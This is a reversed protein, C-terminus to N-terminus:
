SSPADYDVRTRAGGATREVWWVGDLGPLAVAGSPDPRSSVEAELGAAAAAAETPDVSEPGSALSGAPGLVSPARPGGALATEAALRFGGWAHSRVARGEVPHEGAATLVLGHATGLQRYGGSGAAHHDPGEGGLWQPEDTAEFDLEWGLPVRHGLGRGLLEVPDDLALAFAELGYSWHVYPDECVHDAWLGSTRVEIGQGPPRADLESITLPPGSGLVAIQVGARSRSRDVVVQSAVVLISGRGLDAAVLLRDM